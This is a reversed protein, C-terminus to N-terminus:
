SELTLRLPELTLWWSELQAKLEITFRCPELHAEMAEPHAEM